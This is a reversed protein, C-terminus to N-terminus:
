LAVQVDIFDAPFNKAQAVSLTVLLVSVSIFIAHAKVIVYLLAEVFDALECM